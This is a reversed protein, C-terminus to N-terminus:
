DDAVVVEPWNGSEELREVWGDDQGKTVMGMFGELWTGLIAIARKGTLWGVQAKVGDGLPLKGLGLIDFLVLTDGFTLHGSDQLGIERKWGTFQPWASVWSEDNTRNHPNPDARGWVVVPQSVTENPALWIPPDMGLGGRFRDDVALTSYTTSGGFSHGFIAANHVNFPPNWKRSKGALKSRGKCQGKGRGRETDTRNCGPICEVDLSSVVDRRGLESLVFQVDKVREGLLEELRGEEERWFTDNKGLVADGDPFEVIPTEYTHDVSVVTYGRSALEALVQNYLLRSAGLGPSFIVLPFGTVQDRESSRRKRDCGCCVRM